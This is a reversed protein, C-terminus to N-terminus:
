TAAVQADALAWMFYVAISRYPRWSETLETMQEPTLFAGKIKKKGDLRSKMEAVTLGAPLAQPPQDVFTKKLTREISPTFAPPLAPAGSDVPPPTSPRALEDAENPVMDADEKKDRKTTKKKPSAKTPSAPFAHSPSHQSLFWRLVGRQVGLDGVPLIDPRRLSFIAFMDVTWQGIGRVPLLLEALEEDSSEFIKSASLRGDAFREALDHIYEAKRQSLGATRLTTLDTVAVQAPTPFFSGSYEERNEPLAPDYLRLFRHHISRAALTSIQQSLISSTLARFPHIHELEEFPKCRLRSFVDVFRADVGCLHERAEYFSFTLQPVLESGQDATHSADSQAGANNIIQPQAAKQNASRSKAVKKPSTPEPSTSLRRKASRTAPM